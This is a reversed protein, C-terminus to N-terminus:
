PSKALAIKAHQHGNLYSEAPKGFKPRSQGNSALMNVLLLTLTSSSLPPANNVCVFLINKLLLEEQDEYFAKIIGLPSVSWREM